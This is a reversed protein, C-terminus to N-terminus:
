RAVRWAGRLFPLVTERFAPAMTGFVPGHGGNPVVWLRADRIHQHLEVALAVPYFPDRDGFVILTDATICALREPTFDVDDHSDAFGRAEAFLWDLQGTRAHTAQLRARESPPLMEASWQRQIARAEPPFRPPASIVVMADVLDPDRTALHLAVIGGGSLGIIKVRPVGLHRLLAAVHDAAEGFRFPRTPSSSGAHGPLDPAILRFGSPTEPFLHLWDAGAGMFGHLWLLPEGSGTVAYRLRVDGSDFEM